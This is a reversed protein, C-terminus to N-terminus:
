HLFVRGELVDFGDLKTPTDGQLQSNTFRRLAQHMTQQFFVPLPICLALRYRNEGLARYSLKAAWTPPNNDPDLSRVTEVPLSAELVACDDIVPGVPPYAVTLPIDEPLQNLYRIVFALGQELASRLTPAPSHTPQNM